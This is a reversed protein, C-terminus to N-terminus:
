IRRSLGVVKWGQSILVRCLAEGAIGTAGVVLALPGVAEDAAIM